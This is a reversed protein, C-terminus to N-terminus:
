GGQFSEDAAGEDVLWEVELREGAADAATEDEGAVVLVQGDVLAPSESRTVRVPRSRGCIGRVGVGMGCVRVRSCVRM